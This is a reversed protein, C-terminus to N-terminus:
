SMSRAQQPARGAASLLPSSKSTMLFVESGTKALEACTRAGGPGTRRSPLKTPRLTRHEPKYARSSCLTNSERAGGSAMRGSALPTLQGGLLDILHAFVEPYVEMQEVCVLQRVGLQFSGTWVIFRGVEFSLTQGFIRIKSLGAGSASSM